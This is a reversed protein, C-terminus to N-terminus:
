EENKLLWKNSIAKWSDETVINKFVLGERGPKKGIKSQGDAMVLLAAVDSSAKFTLEIVPVHNFGLKDCFIRRELPALYCSEKINWVDFVYFELRDLGYLNGQM